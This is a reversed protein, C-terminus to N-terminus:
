RNGPPDARRFQQLEVRLAAYLTRVWAPQAAAERGQAPEVRFDTPSILVPMGRRKVLAALVFLDEAGPNGMALCGISASGGHIMIDGGLRRRGDAQAMRRDFANPYDLRISLHFRSNPNLSEVRYLGEPVQEDGQALKPGLAGSAGHVPYTKVFRWAEQPSARGYVELRRTDKFAVYALEPPPYPLGAAAFTERLRAEVAPGYQRLREEITYSGRVRIWASEALNRLGEPMAAAGISAVAALLAALAAAHWGTARRQRPRSSAM